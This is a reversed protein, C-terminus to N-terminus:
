GATEDCPGHACGCRSGETRSPRAAERECHDSCFRKGAPVTCRCLTHGCAAQRTSQNDTEIM